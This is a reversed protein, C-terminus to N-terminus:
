RAIQYRKLKDYLTSRDIGLIAAAEKVNGETNQLTLVILQREADALTLNAPPLWGSPRAERALFAFDGETLIRNKCTVVARELVNQLERVNGPWDHELLRGAM